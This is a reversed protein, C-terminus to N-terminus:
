FFGVILNKQYRTSAKSHFYKTNSDRAQFWDLCSRHYWMTDNKDLWCNLEVKSDRLAKIIDTSTPQLELWELQKQLRAIQSGVQGFENKNWVELRNWASYLGEDQAESVVRECRSDKLWM